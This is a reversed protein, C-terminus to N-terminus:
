DVRWFKSEDQSISRNLMSLSLYAASAEVELFAHWRLNVNSTQEQSARPPVLGRQVVLCPSEAAINRERCPPVHNSFGHIEKMASDYKYRLDQTSVFGDYCSFDANMPAMLPFM